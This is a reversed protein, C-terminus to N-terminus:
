AKIFKATWIHAKGETQVKVIYIGKPLHAVSVESVGNNTASAIKKQSLVVRGQVDSIQVQLPEDTPHQIHIKDTTPNPSIQLTKVTVNETAVVCLQQLVTYLFTRGQQWVPNWYQNPFTVTGTPIGYFLHGQGQYPYFEHYIGLLNMRAAIPISGYMTPYTPINFPPGSDIDVIQDDTGHILLTPIKENANIKTLDNIAGWLDIIGKIKINHAYNNGSCDLCGLDQNEGFIGYTEQPRDANNNYFATHLATVAGASEGGIFIKTTDIRYQVANEMLFRLAARADQVARYVARTASGSSLQNFGLRYNMSVAVYGHHALSDCWATVDADVKDGLQFAGGYMMMVLPRRQMTDGTPQYIDLKLPQPFNINLADYRDATGYTIDKTITITPFVARQFRGNTPCQALATTTLVTCLLATLGCIFLNKYM